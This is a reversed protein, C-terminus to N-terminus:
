DLNAPEPSITSNPDRPKGYVMIDFLYVIEHDAKTNKKMDKRHFNL